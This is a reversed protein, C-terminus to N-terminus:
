FYFQMYCTCIFCNRTRCENEISTGSVIQKELFLKKYWLWCIFRLFFLELAALFGYWINFEFLGNLMLFESVFSNSLPLAINAFAIMVLFIALSPTNVALGGLESIKRVGTKKEIIDVVVWLAIINIGHNLM